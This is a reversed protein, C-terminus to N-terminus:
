ARSWGHAQSGTASLWPFNRASYRVVMASSAEPVLSSAGASWGAAVAAFIQDSTGQCQLKWPGWFTNVAPNVLGSAVSVIMRCSGLPALNWTKWKSPVAGSDFSMPTSVNLQGGMCAAARLTSP